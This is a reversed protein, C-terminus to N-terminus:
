GGVTLSAAILAPIAILVGKAPPSTRAAEREPYNKAILKLISTQIIIASFPKERFIYLWASAKTSNIGSPYWKRTTENYCQTEIFVNGTRKAQQDNKVEITQLNHNLLRNAIREGKDGELKTNEWKRLDIDHAPQRQSM